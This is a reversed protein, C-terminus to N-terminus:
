SSIYIWKIKSLLKTKNQLNSNEQMLLNLHNQAKLPWNLTSSSLVLTIRLNDKDFLISLILLGQFFSFFLIQVQSWFVLSGTRGRWCSVQNLVQKQRGPLLFFPVEPTHITLAKNPLTVCIHTFSASSSASRGGNNTFCLARQFRKM